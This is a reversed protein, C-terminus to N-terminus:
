FFNRAYGTEYTLSLIIILMVARISETGASHKCQFSQKNTLYFAPFAYLWPHSWLKLRKLPIYIGETLTIEGIANLARVIFGSKASSFIKKKKLNLICNKIEQVLNLSHIPNMLSQSTPLLNRFTPCIFPGSNLHNRGLLYTCVM